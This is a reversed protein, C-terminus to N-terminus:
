DHSAMVVVRPCSWSRAVPRQPDLFLGALAMLCLGHVASFWGPRVGFFLDLVLNIEGLNENFIGRFVPISIFAPVAYPLFLAIRYASRGKLAPWSLAVAFFLGLAFTLLTNLTAFSVTWAFVRGFPELFQRDGFIRAYNAWGM